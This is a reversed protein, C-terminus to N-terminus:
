EGQALANILGSIPQLRQLHGILTVFIVLKYFGGGNQGFVAARHLHLITVRQNKHVEAGVAGPLEATGKNISVEGAKFALVPRFQAPKDHQGFVSGINVCRRPCPMNHISHGPRYPLLLTKQCPLYLLLGTSILVPCYM